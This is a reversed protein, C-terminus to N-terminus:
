AIARGEHTFVAELGQIGDRGASSLLAALVRNGYSEPLSALLPDVSPRYVRDVDFANVRLADEHVTVDHSDPPSYVHNARV